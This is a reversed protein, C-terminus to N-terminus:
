EESGEGAMTHYKQARRFDEEHTDATNAIATLGDLSGSGSALLGTITYITSSHAYFIDIDSHGGHHPHHHTSPPTQQVCLPILAALASLAPKTRLTSHAEDGGGPTTYTLFHEPTHHLTNPPNLSAM